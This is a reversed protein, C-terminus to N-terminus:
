AATVSPGSRLLGSVVDIAVDTAQTPSTSTGCWGSRVPGWPTSGYARTSRRRRWVPVRGGAGVRGHRPHQDRGPGPRLVGAAGRRVGGGGPAGPRPRRGAARRPADLAYLGAAALIGVQRMGGGYRKRWIRAEAIATPPGSWCRVWRRGSGRASAYRSRTSSAGTTPWRWGPRWTPTGSGPGTWTCASAVSRSRGQAAVPDRRDAAGHRRRLQPHERRRGAGHQGPLRRRRHDDAGAPRGRVAARTAGGLDAVLHRLVGGRCGARRPGRAGALRLGAGRRARRAAAPGLQNAMSGTPTFLAAEHGLLDAVEEELANVTPDEGFVDDGVEAAAMAARMGDTPRTLTDSLLDARFAASVGGADGRRPVGARPEAPPEPAPRLGVRLAERPRRRPDERCGGLCETVDNGTLEM